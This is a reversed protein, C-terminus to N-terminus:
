APSGPRTGSDAEDLFAYDAGLADTISGPTSPWGRLALKRLREMLLVFLAADLGLNSPLWDKGGARLLFHPVERGPHIPSTGFRDVFFREVDQWAYRQVHRSGRRISFGDRDILVHGAELFITKLGYYSIVVPFSLTLLASVWLPLNDSTFHLLALAGLGFPWVLLLAGMASAKGAQLELQWTGSRAATETM